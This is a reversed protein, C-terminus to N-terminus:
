GLHPGEIEEVWEDHRRIEADKVDASRRTRSLEAQLHAVAQEKAAVREREKALLAQLDGVEAMHIPKSHGDAHLIM